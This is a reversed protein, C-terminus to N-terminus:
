SPGRRLDDREVVRKRLSGANETTSRARRIYNVSRDHQDRTTLMCADDRTVHVIETPEVRLETKNADSLRTEVTGAARSECEFALCAKLM